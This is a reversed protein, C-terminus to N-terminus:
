KPCCKRIAGFIHPRCGVEGTLPFISRFVSPKNCDCITVPYSRCIFVIIIVASINGTLKECVQQSGCPFVANGCRSAVVGVSFDGILSSSSSSSSSRGRRVAGGVCRQLLCHLAVDNGQQRFAALRVAPKGGGAVLQQKLLGGESVLCVAGVGAAFDVGVGGTDIQVDGFGALDVQSAAGDGYSRLVLVINQRHVARHVIGSRLDGAPILDGGCRRILQDRIIRGAGDERLVAALGADDDGMHALAHGHVVAVAFGDGVGGLLLVLLNIEAPILHRLLCRGVHCPRVGVLRPVAVGEGRGKFGIHAILDVTLVQGNGVRAVGHSAAVRQLLLAVCRSVGTVTGDTPRGIGGVIAFDGHLLLVQVAATRVAVANGDQRHLIDVRVNGDASAVVRDICLGGRDINHTDAFTSALCIHLQPLVGGDAIGLVADHILRYAAPRPLLPLDAAGGAAVAGLRVVLLVLHRQGAVGALQIGGTLRRLVGDIQFGAVLDHHEVVVPVHHIDGDLRRIGVAVGDRVVGILHHLILDALLGGDGCGVEDAILRHVPLVGLVELRRLVAIIGDCELILLGRAIQDVLRDIHVACTDRVIQAGEGATRQHLPLGGVFAGLSRGGEVVILQHTCSRVAVSGGNTIRRLEVAGVVDGHGVLILGLGLVNRDVSIHTIFVALDQIQVLGAVLADGGALGDGDGGRLDRAVLHLAVGALGEEDAVVLSLILIHLEEILLVGGVIGINQDLQHVAGVVVLEDAGILHGADLVLRLEDLSGGREIAVLGIRIPVILIPRDAGGACRSRKDSLDHELIDGMHMGDRHHQLVLQVVRVKRDIVELVGILHHVALAQLDGRGANVAVGHGGTRFCHLLERVDGLILRDDKLIFGDVLLQDGDMHLADAGVALSQKLASLRDGM